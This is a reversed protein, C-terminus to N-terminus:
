LLIMEEDDDHSPAAIQDIALALAGIEPAAFFTRVSITVGFDRQIAALMELAKLSHGGAQFFDTAIGIRETRLMTEWLACLRKETETVPAVYERTAAVAADPAPLAKRDVKGNPGLPLADLLMFRNPVMYAPLRAALAARLTGALGERAAEPEPVVYAVLERDRDSSGALSVAAARVSAEGQLVAEIEGLEVRFGRIKIQHDVRGVYDLSGDPLFRALDGTRYMRAGPEPSFPDPLFSAATLDPKHLYGRALGIGAIHLHGAVGAPVPDLFADLLYLRLNHVPWGIPVSDGDLLAPAEAAAACVSAESPGYQNHVKARPVIARSKAVLAPPLAQGGCIVHRLAHCQAIEHTELLVEYLPPVFVSITVGADRMLGALYAPELEGKPRAIVLTGGTILPLFLECVSADFSLSTRQLVADKATVEYADKWWLLQNVIGAHEVAVAKPRGTSGSTFIAYALNEPKLSVRPATRPWDVGADDDADLCLIAAGGAPLRASLVAQTLVIDFGADEVMLAIREAPYAPDLPVYAGGAKMVALMAVVAAPSRELFLGVPKDPTLGAAILRHALRNAEEDLDRYRRAEGEFRIAIADPDAKAAAEVLSVLTEGAGTPHSEGRGEALLGAIDAPAMMARSSAPRDFGRAMDALARELWVGVERALAPPCHRLDHSIHLGAYGGQNVVTVGLPFNTAEFSESGLVEIGPADQMADLVHFNIYNFVAEFLNARDFALSIESMPYARHPSIALEAEFVASILARWSAGELALRFPVTNLFLGLIRDGEAIEPRSHTVVGSMVDSQGSIMGLMKLHAALFVTRLPVNLAMAQEQLRAVLDPALAHTVHGVGHERARGPWEPLRSVTHDALRELWFARAAPDALARYEAAVALKGEARMPLAAIEEGALLARYTSFLVSQFTAVSWGDLIAHHFAFTYNIENEGLRHIAVRFLPATSLDFPNRKEAERWATIAEDQTAPTLARLDLHAVPLAIRRAVIQMPTSFRAIDFSTRLAPNAEVVRALATEFCQEDWRALKLRFSFVDHYLGIDEGLQGHFVMGLQLRSLPYADEAGEPMKARDAESLAIHSLLGATTETAHAEGTEALAAITQRRFLDELRIALGSERAKAIVVVARMSDGGLAFFNDDIGIREVGLVAQWIDALLAEKPRRPARYATATVDRGPEPLRAQDIKGNATLPFAKLWLYHAPIMYDPLGAALAERMAEARHTEPQDPGAEGNSAICYAVLRKEGSPGPRALVLAGAVHPLSELAAEIEGLEIRFGRIKVQHDARGLYEIEGDAMFRAVDGTRYMRAGPTMAFPDPLFREASLDPRNHYGRALGPGAVHLEGYIGTPVPELREDLIYLRLDPIARGIGASKRSDDVIPNYTVHVTTETIGYMNILRPQDYGYLAFWPDLAKRNLAEGGFIVCRLPLRRATVSHRRRIEADLLQQFASPTQNLITVREADLLALFAEPDRTTLHPVIVLAGGTTLPGFIEWVSFDFAFSHFLTWIDKEGFTFWGETSDMLRLVNAHTMLAGKPKGTSGSTYIVYALNQALNQARTKAPPAAEESNGERGQEKAKEKAQDESADLTIIPKSFPSFRDELTKQTLILVPNADEIMFGLRQAPYDPDLPLYAGGAKLI